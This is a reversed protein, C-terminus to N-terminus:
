PSVTGCHLFFCFSLFALAVCIILPALIAFVTFEYSAQNFRGDDKLRETALGVQMSTLLLAVYGVVSAMTALNHGFFEGYTRHWQSYSRYRLFILRYIWNLRQLRLEGFRYRKNVNGLMRSHLLQKALELLSQTLIDGVPISRFFVKCM